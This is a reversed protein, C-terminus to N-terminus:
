RPEVGQRRGVPGSGGGSRTDLGLTSVIDPFRMGVGVKGRDSFEIPTLSSMFRTSAHDGLYHDGDRASFGLPCGFEFADLASGGYCDARIADRDLISTLSYAAAGLDGWYPMTAAELISASLTTVSPAAPAGTAVDQAQVGLPLLSAAAAFLTFRISM